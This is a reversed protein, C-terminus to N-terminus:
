SDGLPSSISPYIEERHKKTYDRELIYTHKVSLKHTYTHTHTHTHTHAHTVACSDGM